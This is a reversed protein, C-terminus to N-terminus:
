VRTDILATYPAKDVHNLKLLLAALERKRSFGERDALATLHKESYVAHHLSYIEEVAGSGPPSAFANAYRTVFDILSQTMTPVTAKLLRTVAKADATIAQKGSDSWKRIRVIGEVFGMCINYVVYQLIRQIQRSSGQESSLTKLKDHLAFFTDKVFKCLASGDGGVVNKDDWKQREVFSAVQEASYLNGALRRFGHMAAASSTTAAHQTVTTLEDLASADLLLSLSKLCLQQTHVVAELSGLATSRERAAHLQSPEGARSKWMHTPAGIFRPYGDPAGFASAASAVYEAASRVHEPVNTDEYLPVTEAAQAVHTIVFWAYQAGLSSILKIVAPAALPCMKVADALELMRQCTKLSSFTFISVTDLVSGVSGGSPDAHGTGSAPPLLMSLVAFDDRSAQFPSFMEAFLLRGIDETLVNAFYTELRAALVKLVANRTQAPSADKSLPECERIFDLVIRFLELVEPVDARGLPVRSVYAMISVMCKQVATAHFNCLHAHPPEEGPRCRFRPRAPSDDQVDVINLPAVKSHPVIEEDGDPKGDTRVSEHMQACHTTVDQADSRIRQATRLLAHMCKVINYTTRQLESPVLTDVIDEWSTKTDEGLTDVLTQLMVFDLAVQFSEAFFRMLTSPNLRLARLGELVRDLVLREEELEDSTLDELFTDGLGKMKTEVSAAQMPSPNRLETSGDGQKERSKRRTSGTGTASSKEPRSPKGHAYGSSNSSWELEEAVEKRAAASSAAEEAAEDGESDADTTEPSSTRPTNDGSALHLHPVVEARRFCSFVNLVHSSALLRCTTRRINDLIFPNRPNTLTLWKKIASAGIVTALLDHGAANVIESPLEDDERYHIDNAPDPDGIGALEMGAETSASFFAVTPSAPTSVATYAGLNLYTIAESFRQEFVLQRVASVKEDWTRIRDLIMIVEHLRERRRRLRGVDLASILSARAFAFKARLSAAEDGVADLAEAAVLLPDVTTLTQRGFSRVQQDFAEELVEADALKPTILTELKTCTETDDDNYDASLRRIDEKPDYSASLQIAAKVKVRREEDAKRAAEAAKAKRVAEEAVEAEEAEVDEKNRRGVFSAFSGRRQM